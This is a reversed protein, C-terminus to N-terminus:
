NIADAALSTASSFPQSNPSALRRRVVVPIRRALRRRQHPITRPGRISRADMQESQQYDAKAGELDNLSDQRYIGRQAYEWATRPQEINLAPWNVKAEFFFVPNPSQLQPLAGQSGIGSHLPDDYRAEYEIPLQASVGGCWAIVVATAISLCTTITTTM